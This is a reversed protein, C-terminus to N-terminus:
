PQYNCTTQNGRVLCAGYANQLNDQTVQWDTGNVGIGNMTLNEPLVAVRYTWGPPLKLKQDLTQLDNYTLNKDVIQSYSQMVYSTNNQSDDLIFVPKDKDFFWTRKSQVPVSMYAQQSEGFNVGAPFVADAVWRTDIGDLNRITKSFNLTMADMTWNRLGNAYVMPSNYQQMVAESSYNVWLNEPLSDDPNSNNNLGQTNFVATGAGTCTMLFEAYHDNRINDFHLAETNNRDNIEVYPCQDMTSNNGQTSNDVQASCVSILSGMILLLGVIVKANLRM